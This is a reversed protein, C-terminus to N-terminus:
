PPSRSPWNTSNAGESEARWNKKPRDSSRGYNKRQAAWNMRSIAIESRRPVGCLGQKPIPRPDQAPSETRKRKSNRKSRSRFAPPKQHSFGGSSSGFRGASTARHFSRIRDGDGGAHKRLKELGERAGSRGGTRPHTGRLQPQLSQTEAGFIGSMKARKRKSRLWPANKWPGQRNGGQMRRPASEKRVMGRDKFFRNSRTTPRTRPGKADIDSIWKDAAAVARNVLLRSDPRQGSGKGAGGAAHIAHESAGRL